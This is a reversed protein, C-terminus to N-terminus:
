AVRARMRAVSSSAVEKLKNSCSGAKEVVSGVNDKIQDRRQYGYGAVGGGVAGTTTGAAVGVCAGAGGGIMAGVPISLGFTFLALPLGMTAGALGGAVGGAAGGGAGVLLAGGMASAAVPKTSAKDKTNDMAKQLFQVIPHVISKALRETSTYAELVQVKVVGRVTTVRAKMYVTADDVKSMVHVYGDKVYVVVDNARGAVFSHGITVQQMVKQTIPLGEVAERMYAYKKLALTQTSNITEAGKAKILVTVDQVRGKASLLGDQVRRGYAEVSARVLALTELVKGQVLDHTQVGKAKIAIMMTETTGYIYMSGGKVRVVVNGIKSHSYVLANSVPAPIKDQILITTRDYGELVRAQVTDFRVRAQEALVNRRAVLADRGASAHSLFTDRGALVRVQILLAGDSVHGHLILARGQAAEIYREAFLRMKAYSHMALADAQDYREELKTKVVIVINGVKEYVFVFGDTTYKTLRDANWKAPASEGTGAVKSIVEPSADTSEGTCARPTEVEFFEEAPEQDVKSVINVAATDNAVLQPVAAM